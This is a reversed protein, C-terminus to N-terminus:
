PPLVPNSTGWWQTWRAYNITSYSSPATRITKSLSAQGKMFKDLFYAIDAGQDAPFACHAHGGDVNFGFRDAIGLTSYTKACAQGCVYASPNSLWTYDTNATCYLARPACMAMLMHHDDPLYSANSGGFQFLSPSFWQHSTQSIGEVSGSPETASYRWSTAGGGGCAWLMGAAVVFSRTM